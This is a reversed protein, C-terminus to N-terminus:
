RRGIGGGACVLGGSGFGKGSWRDCDYSCGCDVGVSICCGLLMVRVLIVVNVVFVCGKTSAMMLLMKVVALRKKRLLSVVAVVAALRKKSVRVRFPSIMLGRCM